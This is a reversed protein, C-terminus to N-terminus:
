HHKFFRGAQQQLSCCWCSDKAPFYSEAQMVDASGTLREHLLSSMIIPPSRVALARQLARVAVHKSQERLRDMDLLTPPGPLRAQELAIDADKQLKLCAATCAAMVRLVDATLTRSPTQAATSTEQVADHRLGQGISVDPMGEVEALQEGADETGGAQSPSCGGRDQPTCAAAADQRGMLKRLHNRAFFTDNNTPDVAFALGQTECLAVLEDKRM